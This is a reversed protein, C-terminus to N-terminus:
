DTDDCNDFFYIQRIFLHCKVRELSFLRPLTSERYNDPVVGTM